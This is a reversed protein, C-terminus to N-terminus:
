RGGRLRILTFVAGFVSVGMGWYFINRLEEPLFLFLDAFIQSFNSYSQVLGSRWSQLQQVMSLVDDSDSTDPILGQGSTDKYQEGCRSCEYIIYGEQILQGSDDYETVVRSKVQWDHGLAPITEIYSDGCLCTFLRAGADVCTAARIIEDTYSHVHVPTPTPSPSPSPSPTPTPEPVEMLYYINYTNGGENITINQDGYEVTVTDGEETTLNYSRDSYDYTWDTVNYVTDTIPNYVTNNSEDVINTNEVAQLNGNGDIVGYVGEFSVPRTTKNYNNEFQESSLNVPEVDFWVSYIVYFSGNVGGTSFDASTNLHDGANCYLNAATAYSTVGSANNSYDCSYHVTYYGSIPALNSVSSYSYGSLDPSGCSKCWGIRIRHSDGGQISFTCTVPNVGNFKVNYIRPNGYYSGPYYCYGSLDPYWIFSGDSKLTQFPLEEAVYEEYAEEAVEGASKGCYECIYYNGLKGDVETLMEVFKHRGNAETSHRCVNDKGMLMDILNWSYYNKAHHIQSDINRGIASWLDGLEFSIGDIDILSGGGSGGGGVEGPLEYAFVVPASYSLCLIIVALFASFRKFFRQKM